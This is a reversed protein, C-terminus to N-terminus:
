PTLPVAQVAIRRSESSQHSAIAENVMEIARQRAADNWPFVHEIGPRLFHLVLEAPPQGLAREAAMAYVYMQMEYQEAVRPSM